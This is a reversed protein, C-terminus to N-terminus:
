VLGQVTVNLCARMASVSSISSIQKSFSFLRWCKGPFYVVKSAENGTFASPCPYVILWAAQMAFALSILMGRSRGGAYESVITPIVPYDGGMDFGLFLESYSSSANPKVTRLPGPYYTPAIV